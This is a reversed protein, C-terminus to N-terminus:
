RALHGNAWLRSAQAVAFFRKVLLAYFMVKRGWNLDPPQTLRGKGDIDLIQLIVPDRTVRPLTM